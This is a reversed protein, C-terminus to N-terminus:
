RAFCYESQAHGWVYASVALRKRDDTIARNGPWAPSRAGAAHSINASAPYSRVVMRAM